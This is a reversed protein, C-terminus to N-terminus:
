YRPLEPPTFDESYRLAYLTFREGAEESTDDSPSLISDRWSLEARGFLTVSHFLDASVPPESQTTPLHFHISLQVQFSLDYGQRRPYPILSIMLELIHPYFAEYIVCSFFIAAM